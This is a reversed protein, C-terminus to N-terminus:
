FIIAFEQLYLNVKIKIKQTNSILYTGIIKNNKGMLYVGYADICIAVFIISALISPVHVSDSSQSWM